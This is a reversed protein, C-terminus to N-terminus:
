METEAALDQVDFSRTMCGHLLHAAEGLIWLRRDLSIQNSFGTETCVVLSRSASGNGTLARRSYGRLARAAKTAVSFEWNRCKRVSEKRRRECGRYYHTGIM